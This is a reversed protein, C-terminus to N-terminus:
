SEARDFGYSDIGELRKKPPEFRSRAIKELLDIHARIGPAQRRMEGYLLRNHETWAHRKEESTRAAAARERLARLTSSSEFIRGQLARGQARVALPTARLQAQLEPEVRASLGARNGTPSPNKPRKSSAAPLTPALLVGLLLLCLVPKRM